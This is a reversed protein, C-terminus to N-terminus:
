KAVQYQKLQSKLEQIQEQAQRNALFYYIFGILFIKSLAFVAIFVWKWTKHIRMHSSEAEVEIFQSGPTRDFKSRGADRRKLKPVAEERYKLSNIEDEIKTLMGPPPAIAMYQAIRELDTELEFLADRIEPYQKKLQMLEHVEEDSAAGLVYSELVGSEIYERIKM